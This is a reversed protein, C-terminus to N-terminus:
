QVFDAAPESDAAALVTNEFQQAVDVAPTGPGNNPPAAAPPSLWIWASLLLVVVLCPTAARWLGRAWLDWTDVLPATRLLTMVRREFGYPVRDHCPNSRAIEIVKRQLKDLNM